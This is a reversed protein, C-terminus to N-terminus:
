TPDLRSMVYLLTEIARLTQANREDDLARGLVAVVEVLRPAMELEYRPVRRPRWPPGYVMHVLAIASSLARREERRREKPSAHRQLFRREREAAGRKGFYSANASTFRGNPARALPEAVRPRRAPGLPSPRSSGPV